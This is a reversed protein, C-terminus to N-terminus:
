SGEDTKTNLSAALQWLKEALLEIYPKNELRARWSYPIAEVGLHAASIAGAMAAITDTDGGLSIAYLVCDQYSKPQRLFSYIATPVSNLAEIGNGLISVVRARDEEGLLERICAIKQRYLPHQAFNHLREIFVEQDVERDSAINTALAVAYAELSAGEKGLEHSHTIMSSKYAVERLKAPDTSYLLGIPAVRMASGNGFSGGKYLKSAARDWPEGARIMRFIRPPGPGYGRWPEADYNRTFTQTMHEGHFGKSEILSEAVGITMHTDDTYTLLELKEALSEIEGKRAMGRGERCAGLADGIAVGLLCGLFKPLLSERQM